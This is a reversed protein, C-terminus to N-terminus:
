NRGSSGFVAASLSNGQAQLRSVATEMDTFRAILAQQRQEVREQLQAIRKNTRITQATINSLLTPITGNATQTAENAAAVMANGVGATGFLAMVGSLNATMANRLSTENVEVSGAQTLTFGALATRSFDGADPVVTRLSQTLSSVIRRLSGNSALPQGSLQQGAAFSVVNNFATAFEKVTKVSADQDRTITVDIETGAEAQLLNLTVGEIADTINNTGRSLLVGDVRIQADTGKALARARGVTETEVSGLLAAPAGGAAPSLGISLRLRSDGGVTDTMRLRGDPDISAVAGRATSGFGSAADNLAATLTELTDAGGVVFATNVVSGDGRQGSFTLTDGVSVGLAGGSARLDTLLTASTAVANSGDQFALASAIVHQVSSQAGAALGLTALTASSSPDATATVNSGISMRYSPVGGVTERQVEAQGGAARIKAVITSISDVSLDVSVTRSGVRISSPPPSTVGLAAAIGLTSSPVARSRTDIFGLDRLAGASGDVLAVGASGAADASIVLRKQGGASTLVSASVKTANAGTNLANIKDRVGDLTDTAVVTVTRGAVTFAGNIALATAADAVVAGSLKEARALEVVEVKYAGPRAAVTASANLLARTTQSSPSASAAFSNFATGQKLTQGAERLKQVLGSLENWAVKRKDAASVQNQLPTVNRAREAAVLQDVLDRWQFGSALGGVNISSGM